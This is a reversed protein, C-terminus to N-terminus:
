AAPAFASVMLPPLKLGLEVPVTVKLDAALPPETTNPADVVVVTVFAGKVILAGFTVRPEADVTVVVRAEPVPRVTLVPPREAASVIVEGSLAFPVIDV